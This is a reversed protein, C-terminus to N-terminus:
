NAWAGLLRRVLALQGIHYANHDAILLAEALVNQGTGHPFPAYLDTTPNEILKQMEAIDKKITAISSKWVADSPPKETKPWYDDPWKREVYKPNQCFDIIDSLALRMHELLQWASYPAGSPKVGRLKEPFDKVVDDFSAHARSQQLLASIQERLPDKM